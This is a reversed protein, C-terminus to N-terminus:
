AKGETAKKREFFEWAIRYDEERNALAFPAVYKRERRVPGGPQTDDMVTTSIVTGDPLKGDDQLKRVEDWGEVERSSKDPFNVTIVAETRKRKRPLGRGAFGKNNTFIIRGYTDYWTNREYSQLVPFQVMYIM